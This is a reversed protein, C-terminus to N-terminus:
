SHHRPPMSMGLIVGAAQGSAQGSVAAMAALSELEQQDLWVGGCTPCKDYVVSQQIQKTMSAGCKPCTM